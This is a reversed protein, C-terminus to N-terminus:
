REAIRLTPIRAFEIRGPIISVCITWAGLDDDSVAADGFLHNAPTVLLARHASHAIGPVDRVGSQEECGVLRFVDGASLQNDITPERDVADSCWKELAAEM